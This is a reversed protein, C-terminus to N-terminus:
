ALVNRTGQLVTEMREYDDRNAARFVSLAEHPVENVYIQDKYLTKMFRYNRAFLEGIADLIGQAFEPDRVLAHHSSALPATDARSIGLGLDTGVDAEVEALSPPLRVDLPDLQGWDDCLEVAARIELRYRVVAGTSGPPDDLAVMAPNYTLLRNGLGNLKTEALAEHDFAFGAREAIRQLIGAADGVFDEYRIVFAHPFVRDFLKFLAFPKGTRVSIDRTLAAFDVDPNLRPTPLAPPTENRLAAVQELTFPRHWGLASSPFSWDGAIEALRRNIESRLVDEPQRVVFFVVEIGLQDRIATLLRVNDEHGFPLRLKPRAGHFVLGRGENRLGLLDTAEMTRALRSIRSLDGTELSHVVAADLEHRSCLLLRGQARLNLYFARSAARGSNVIMFTM